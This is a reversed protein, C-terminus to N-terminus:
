SEGVRLNRKDIAGASTDGTSNGEEHDSAVSQNRTKLTSRPDSLTTMDTFVTSTPSEPLSSSGIPESISRGHTELAQREALKIAKELSALIDPAHARTKADARIMREVIGLISVTIKDSKRIHDPLEEITEDVVRSVRPHPQAGDHFCDQALSGLRKNEAERHARFTKLHTKGRGIWVCIELM